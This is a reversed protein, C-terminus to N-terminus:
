VFSTYGCFTNKKIVSYSYPLIYLVMLFDYVIKSFLINM